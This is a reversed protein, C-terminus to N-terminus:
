RLEECHLVGETTSRQLCRRELEVADEAARLSRQHPEDRAIVRNLGPLRGSCSGPCTTKAQGLQLLAAWTISPPIPEKWARKLTAVGICPHRKAAPQSLQSCLKRLLWFKQMHVIDIISCSAHDPCEHM